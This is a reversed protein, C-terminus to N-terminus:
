RIALLIAAAAGMAAFEGRDLAGLLEEKSLLVLETHELDGSDVAMTKRAGEAAFFHATGCGYNANVTYSGLSRWRQAEYGTEERLERRAADLPTEGADLAGGPLTLCVRGPGHRYQRTVLYRGDEAQAVIGSFDQLTIRHYDDIVRGDSLEIKQRDVA